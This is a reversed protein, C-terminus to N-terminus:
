GRDVFQSKRFAVCDGQAGQESVCEATFGREQSILLARTRSDLLFKLSQRAARLIVQDYNREGSVSRARM